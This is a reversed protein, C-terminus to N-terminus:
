RLDGRARAAMGSGQKPEHRPWQCKGFQHIFQFPPAECQFVHPETRALVGDLGERRGLEGQHRPGQSQGLSEIAYRYRGLSSRAPRGVGQLGAPSASPKPIFQDM